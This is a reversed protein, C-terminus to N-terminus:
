DLLYDVMDCVPEYGIRRYISNSTPNALDTYLFCLRGSDRVRRSVEATLATAYGRGRLAPPTYVPGIRVGNPTEGAHGAMSVPRGGDEWLSMTRRAIHREAATRSRTMQIGAESQFDEIWSTLLDVDIAAVPRMGGRPRRRPKVLRGLRFLRQRMGPRPPRGTRKAWCAAFAAAEAELGVLAHLEPFISAVDACLVGIAAAPMRTIGLKHPPTRFACGVVGDDLSELTVFYLPPQYLEPSDAAIRAVSLPLNNEAEDRLLWERARELFPLPGAHRVVQIADARSTQSM